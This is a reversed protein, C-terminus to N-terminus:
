GAGGVSATTDSPAQEVLRRILPSEFIKPLETELQELTSVELYFSSSDETKGFYLVISMEFADDDFESNDPLADIAHVTRCISIQMEKPGSTYGVDGRGRFDDIDVASTKAYNGSEICFTDTDYGEEVPAGIVRCERYFDLFETLVNKPSVPGALLQRAFDLFYAIAQDASLEDPHKPMKVRNENSFTNAILTRRIANCAL